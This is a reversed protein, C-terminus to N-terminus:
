ATVLGTQSRAPSTIAATLPGLDPPIWETRARDSRLLEPSYCRELASRDLLAPCAAVLAAASSADPHMARAADILDLWARTLTVHFKEPHGDAAALRQIGATLRRLAEDRGYRALYVITLHVHDAHHFQALSASEFGEVLEDDSIM